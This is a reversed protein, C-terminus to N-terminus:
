DATAAAYRYEEQTTMGKYRYDTSHRDRKSSNCRHCLTQANHLSNDGGKTIPVVHDITLNDIAGCCLCVPYLSFLLRIDRATITGEAAALRARRRHKRAKVAEPHQRRYNREYARFLEPNAQKYARHSHYAKEKNRQYWNAQMTKQCPTCSNQLGDAKTRDKRYDFLGRWNQCRYCYKIPYAKAPM